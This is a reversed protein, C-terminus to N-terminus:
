KGGPETSQGLAALANGGLLKALTDEGLGVARVRRLFRDMGLLPYDTGWLVKDPAWALVHCLITDTYLYPSAATDYYVRRLAARVEPMLEYFPLGGGWHPLILTNQPSHLALRYAQEPGQGGKGPYAHGVPENVHLMLPVSHQRALDLLPDLLPFDTLAFGQGDPMLEGLGTGGAELGDRAARLAEEPRAPNVVLFPFLRGPYRRAADLVYANCERCLGMDAFAFGFTIALAVGAADMAAILEEATAMRARPHGYLLGFWRDRGALAERAAIMEPPLIHTHADVIKM